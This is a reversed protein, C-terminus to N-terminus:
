TQCKLANHLAILTTAGLIEEYQAIVVVVEIEPVRFVLLPVRFPYTRLLIDEVSPGLRGLLCPQRETNRKMGVMRPCPILGGLAIVDLSRFSADIVISVQCLGVSFAFPPFSEVRLIEVLLTMRHTIVRPAVSLHVVLPPPAFASARRRLLEDGVEIVTGEIGDIAIM